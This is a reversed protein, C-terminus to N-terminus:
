GRGQPRDRQRRHDSSADSAPPHGDNLAATKVVAPLPRFARSFREGAYRAYGAFLEDGGEGTLVMKVHRSALEAVMYNAVCADDAIPQDLHWVIREALEIFDEPGVMVEHHDTGFRKAVMRAYPLESYAEGKGTFGVSFTKVPKSLCESMLAVITSSDVGGSLFAGFPVDSM